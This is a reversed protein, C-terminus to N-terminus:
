RIFTARTFANIKQALECFLRQSAEDWSIDKGDVRLIGADRIWLDPFCNPDAFYDNLISAMQHATPQITM